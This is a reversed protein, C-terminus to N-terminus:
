LGSGGRLIALPWWRGLLFALPRRRWVLFALPRRWEFAMASPLLGRGGRFSPQRWSSSPSLSGFMSSPRWLLFAVRRRGHLFARPVTFPPPCLGSDGKTCLWPRRWGLLFAIPRWGYLFALRRRDHLFALAWAVLSPLLWRRWVLFTAPRWQWVLFALAATALRPLCLVGGGFSSPSLGGGGSSSPWPWPQRRWLLFALRRQRWFLFALAATALPPLCSASAALVPLCLNGGGFRQGHLFAQDLAM